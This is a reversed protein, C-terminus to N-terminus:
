KNPPYKREPFSAFIELDQVPNYDNENAKLIITFSLIFKFLDENTPSFLIKIKSFLYNPLCILM